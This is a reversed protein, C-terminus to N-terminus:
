DPQKEAEPGAGPKLVCVLERTESEKLSVTQPESTFGDKSITVTLEEDPLLQSSRKRGDPQSEFNVDGGYVFRGGKSDANTRYRSNLTFEPVENGEEDVAKVLLIPATYRVIELTTFDEELKGLPAESGHQLPEDPRLRWRLASHENTMFNLRAEEIGHPVKFEFWGDDGPRTSTSFVFGGNVKGFLHQEHSARPKGDSGFFRGRVVIHPVAQIEIPDPIEESTLTLEMPVFVDDINLKESPWDNLGPVSFHDEITARYKGPPLPTLQFRGETDTMASARIQNGVSSHGLFEDAEEGDGQRELVVAVSSVPQGKANLVRGSIRTGEQLRFSGLDGRREGIRVAMPSFDDTFIWIVGDGPTACVVRFTGPEGPPAWQFAGSEITLEKSPGKTYAFVRLGTAPTGAPTLVTGFVPDGKRLKITSYFPPEGQEINKLIMSHSYGSRGKPQYDPHVADVELYLSREAVQEPPLTFSYKGSEDSTHQTTELDKWERTVPDVNLSRRIEVVVGAIPKGTAHDVVQGSYTISEPLASKDEVPKTQQDVVPLPAPDNDSEAILRVTGLAVILTATVVATFLTHTGHQKQLFPTERSLLMRVRKLLRSQRDCVGLAHVFEPSKRKRALSVLFDTYDEAQAGQAAAFADALYDQCLMLEKRMLWYLPQQFCVLKLLNSFAYAAFDARLVHSWEHALGYRLESSHVADALRRPVVITRRWIGWMVPTDIQDSAMLRVHSTAHDGAISLLVERVQVSAPVSSREIRRRRHLGVIWYIAIGCLVGLYALQFGSIWTLGVAPSVAATRTSIPDEHSAVNKLQVTRESADLGSLSTASHLHDPQPVGAATTHTGIPQIEPAEGPLIQLPISPLLESQRILPVLLCAAFTWRIVGIRYVPERYLRIAIFGIGLIGGCSLTSQLLWSISANNWM